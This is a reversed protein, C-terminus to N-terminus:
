GMLNMPSNVPRSFEVNKTSSGFGGSYLGKQTQTGIANKAQALSSYLDPSIQRAIPSYQDSGGLGKEMNMFLSTGTSSLGRTTTPTPNLPKSFNAAQIETFLTTLKTVRDENSTLRTELISMTQTLIDIQSIIHQLSSALEDPITRVDLRTTYAEEIEEEKSKKKSSTTKTNKNNADSLDEHEMKEFISAGISVIEPQESQTQMGALGNGTKARTSTEDYGKFNIPSKKGAGSLSNTTTATPMSTVLNTNMSTMKRQTTLGPHILSVRPPTLIPAKQQSRVSFFSATTTTPPDTHIAHSTHSNYGPKYKGGIDSTDTHLPTGADFNSKWVMVQADSGATAFFAGEPSFVAATTPGNKHGHLTYFLHGEKLDWIKVVGDMGTSILWEGGPGGFNVSNPGGGAWAAEGGKSDSAIGAGNHADHYHQILKHTRIDFLKISKDTSATAIITGGPHFATSTVMGTHDWYTKICEKSALDWLKVSKDDSGSIVLKSDPSFQATRVWNMHGALTFQFKTRHTSWIKISKDDSCTLISESDQSFRVSRVTSTHAKFVTVDGKMDYVNPTWLRVTKDRSASALLTGSPSFDVSTVPGKHGVFRFARMGPKFNWVMVSSDMSGSAIQTMSPKFALDTVVDRHGRFSRDLTPDQM